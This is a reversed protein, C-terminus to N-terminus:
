QREDAFWDPHEKRMTADHAQFSNQMDMHAGPDPHDWCLKNLADRLERTRWLNKNYLASDLFHEQDIQAFKPWQTYKHPDFRRYFSDRLAGDNTKLLAEDAPLLDALRSRLYYGSNKHDKNDPTELHWRAFVPRPDFATPLRCRYLLHYLVSAWAMTNPVSETLKWASDFVKHYSYDSWGDLYTDDYPTVMRPNDAVSFIVSQYEEESLRELPGKKEFCDTFLKDSLSSNSVLARLEDQTRPPADALDFRDNILGFGGNPFHALYTCRIGVDGRGYVVKGAKHCTGYRALGFDIYPDDRQVLIGEQYSREGHLWGRDGVEKRIEKLWQVAEPATCVSLYKGEVIAKTALM